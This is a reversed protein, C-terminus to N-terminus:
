SVNFIEIINYCKNYVNDINNIIFTNDINWKFPMKKILINIRNVQNNFSKVSYETNLTENNKFTLVIKENVKVASLINNYNIFINYYAKINKTFIIILNSSLYIPIKYKFGLINRLAKNYTEISTLYNMCIYNVVYFAREKILIKENNTFIISGLSDNIIYNIEQYFSFSGLTRISTRNNNKKM